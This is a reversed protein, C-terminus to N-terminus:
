AGEWPFPQRQSRRADINALARQVYAADRPSLIGGYPYNPPSSAIGGHATTQRESEEKSEQKM